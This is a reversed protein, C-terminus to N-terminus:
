QNISFNPHNGMFNRADAHRDPEWMSGLEFFGKAASWDFETLHRVHNLPGNRPHLRLDDVALNGTHLDLRNLPNHFDGLDLM